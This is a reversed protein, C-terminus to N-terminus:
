ILSAKDFNFIFLQCLSEKGMQRKIIRENTTKRTYESASLKKKQFSSQNKLHVPFKLRSYKKEPYTTGGIKRNGSIKKCVSIFSEVVQICIPSKIFIILENRM